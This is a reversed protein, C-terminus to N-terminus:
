KNLQYNIREIAEKLAFHGAVLASYQKSQDSEYEDHTAEFEDLIIGTDELNRALTQLLLTVARETRRESNQKMMTSKPSGGPLRVGTNAGHDSLRGAPGLAAPSANRRRNM